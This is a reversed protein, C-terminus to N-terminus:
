EDAAEREVDRLVERDAVDVAEKLFRVTSRLVWKKVAKYPFGYSIAGLWGDIANPPLASIKVLFPRLLIMALVVSVPVFVLVEGLFERFLGGSVRTTEGATRQNARKFAIKLTEISTLILLAEACILAILISHAWPVATM